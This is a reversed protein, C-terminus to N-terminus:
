LPKPIRVNRESFDGQEAQKHCASCNAPSRIESQRWTRAPVEDHKRKFWGTETIRLTSEGGAARKGQAANAQLFSGIEGAAAAALSADTGFHRDLGDMLRKWSSAPLLQPPYAIHCAACETQYTPNTAAGRRESAPAATAAAALIAAACLLAPLATGISYHASTM